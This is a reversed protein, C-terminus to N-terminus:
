FGGIISEVSEGAMRLDWIKAKDEVSLEKWIDRFEPDPPTKTIAKSPNATDFETVLVDFDKDFENTLIDSAVFIQEQSWEPNQSMQTRLSDRYRGFNWRQIQGKQIAKNLAEAASFQKDSIRLKKQTAFSALQDETAEVLSFRADSAGDTQAAFARNQMTKTAVIDKSRLARRDEKELEGDAWAKRFNTEWEAPSLAGREVAESGTVLDDYSSEVSSVPESLANIKRLDSKWNAKWNKEFTKQDGVSKLDVLDIEQDTLQTDLLLESLRADEEGTRDKFAEDSRKKEQNKRNDIQNKIDLKDNEPLGSADAIADARKVDLVGEEDRQGLALGLTANKQLKAVRKDREAFGIKKAEKLDALVEAKDKGMNPGLSAYRTAATAQEQASGSTFAQLIADTQVDITDTQLQRTADGLAKRGSVDAWGETRINETTLADPSFSLKNIAETSEKNVRERETEWTEQPNVTKFTRFSVDAANRINTALASSNGDTMEQRKLEILKRRDSKEKIAKIGAILGQGIAGGQGGTGSVDINARVATSPTFGLEQRAPFIGQQAM